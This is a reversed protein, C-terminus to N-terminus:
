KKDNGLLATVQRNVSLKHQSAKSNHYPKATLSCPASKSRRKKSLTATSNRQSHDQAHAFITYDSTPM